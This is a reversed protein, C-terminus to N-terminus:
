SRDPRDSRPLASRAMRPRVIREFREGARAARVELVRTEAFRLRLPADTDEALEALTAEIRAVCRAGHPLCQRTLAVFDRHGLELRPLAGGVATQASPPLRAFDFARVNCTGGAEGADGARCFPEVIQVEWTTRRGLWKRRLARLQEEARPQSDTEFLRTWERGFADRDAVDAVPAPEAACAGLSGILTILLSRTPTRADPM